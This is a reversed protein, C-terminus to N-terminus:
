KWCTPEKQDISMPPPAYKRLLEPPLDRLWAAHRAMGTRLGTRPQYGLLLRALTLDAATAQVDGAQATVATLPVPNGTVERALGIVDIMSVSSGGGVNIVAAPVDVEAAAITAEVVDDVYTFERQQTGDGFITYQQGTLAAALIRAIAMDPRQRPGYVTFYRLATVSLRSAPRKAYALCLQEGALKTVGYPSVPLTPDNEGSAANVQGYVSSSSAYVLKPTGAQECTSLLRQTAVINAAVYDEFRTWSARVGAVAALHFVCASNDVVEKLNVHMLEGEVWSFRPHNFVERLHLRASTESRPSRRDVGVVACGRDLLREVLHSGIFGAAGTVAVKTGAAVSIAM